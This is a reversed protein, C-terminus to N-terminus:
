VVVNVAVEDPDFVIVAVMSPCGTVNGAGVIV